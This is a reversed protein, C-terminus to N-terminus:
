AKEDKEVKSRDKNEMIKPFIETKEFKHSKM